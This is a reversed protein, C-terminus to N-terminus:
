DNKIFNLCKNIEKEPDLVYDKEWIVLVKYGHQIAAQHKIKDFNWIERATMKKLNHYHDEKYISPNCHWYDGNFEIIKKSELITFDYKFAQTGNHIFKENKGELISYNFSSIKEKILEFLQTSVLSRGHGIYTESNFVKKKWKEQRKEWIHTGEISGHKQICKSLSFTCQHEKLLNKSKETDNNTKKLWYELKRPSSSAYKGPDNKLKSIYKNGQEKQYQSVAKVSDIQSYGKNLWYELNLPRQKKIEVLATEKSYGRNLWFDVSMPSVCQPYNEPNAQRKKAFKESNAKQLEAVRNRADNESWGRLLYFKKGFVSFRSAGHSKIYDLVANVIKHDPMKEINVNSYIELLKTNTWIDLRKIKRLRNLIECM